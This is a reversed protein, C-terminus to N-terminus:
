KITIYLFIFTAVTHYILIIKQLKQKTEMQTAPTNHAYELNKIMM